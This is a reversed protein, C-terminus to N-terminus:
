WPSKPSIVVQEIGLGDIRHVFEVGYIGDRDRLLFRPATDWPFAEIIQQGTWAASPALAVNFHIVRRCVNRLVLFVFFVRFAM